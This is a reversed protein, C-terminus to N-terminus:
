TWVVAAVAAEDAASDVNGLLIYLANKKTQMVSVGDNFVQTMQATTHSVRLKNNAGDIVTFDLTSGSIFAGAINLQDKLTSEYTYTVGLADSDFGTEIDVNCALKLENKKNTKLEELSFQPDPTNPVPAILATITPEPIDGPILLIVSEPVWYTEPKLPDTDAQWETWGSQWESHKIVSDDVETQTHYGEPKTIIEPEAPRVPNEESFVWDTYAALDIEYQALDADYSQINLWNDHAATEANFTDELALWAETKGLIWNQILIYDSNRSDNPVQKVGDLLYAGDEQNKVTTIM